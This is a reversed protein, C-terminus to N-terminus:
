SQIASHKGLERALWARATQWDRQVTVTSVNYVLPMLEELAHQDGEIWAALLRKIDGPSNMSELRGRPRRKVSSLVVALDADAKVFLM